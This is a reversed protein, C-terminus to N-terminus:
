AAREGTPSLSCGGLGQNYKTIDEFVIVAGDIVNTVTRYPLTRMFYWRGDKTQAKKEKFVLTQIVERADEVLSEYKLKFAIDSIPRGIDAPNTFKQLLGPLLSIHTPDLHPVLM